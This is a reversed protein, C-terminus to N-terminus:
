TQSCHILTLTQNPHHPLLIKVSYLHAYGESTLVGCVHLIDLQSQESM